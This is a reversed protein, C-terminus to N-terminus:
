QCLTYEHCRLPKRCAQTVPTLNPRTVEHMARRMVVVVGREFELVTVPAHDHDTAHAARLVVDDLEDTCLCSDRACIQKVRGRVRLRLRTNDCGIVINIQSAEEAMLREAVVGFPEALPTRVRSAGALVKRVQV